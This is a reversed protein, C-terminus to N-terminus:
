GLEKLKNALEKYFAIIDYSAGNNIQLPKRPLDIVEYHSLGRGSPMPLSQSYPPIQASWLAVIGDNKGEIRRIYRFPFRLRWDAAHVLANTYNMYVIEPRDPTQANFIRMNEPTLDRLSGLIDPKMDGGLRAFRNWFFSIFKLLRRYAQILHAATESGGHPSSVMTISAIRGILKPDHVAARAEIGGKSHCVLHVKECNQTELVACIRAKLQKVNENLVACSDQSSYFVLFGADEFAKGIRGWLRKETIASVGIGHVLIVPYLIEGSM